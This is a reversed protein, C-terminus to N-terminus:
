IINKTFDDLGALYKKKIPDSEPLSKIWARFLQNEESTIYIDCQHEPFDLIENFIEEITRKNASSLKYQCTECDTFRKQHDLLKVLDAISEVAIDSHLAKNILEQLKEPTDGIMHKKHNSCNMPIIDPFRACIERYPVGESLLDSIQLMDPHNCIKCKTEM